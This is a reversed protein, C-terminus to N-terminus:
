RHTDITAHPPFNHAIAGLHAHTRTYTHAAQMYPSMQYSDSVCTIEYLTHKTAMLEHAGINDM